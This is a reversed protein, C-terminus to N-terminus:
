ITWLGRLAGAGAYSGQPQVGLGQALSYLLQAHSTEGCNLIRGPQYGAHAAGGVMYFPMDKRTHAAGQAIETVVLILSNDLMSGSRGVRPEPREALMQLLLALQTNIWRKQQAHIEGSNHSAQHSEMPGQGNWNALWDFDMKLPSTHRSIQLTAIRSLGCNLAEVLNNIQMRLILPSAKDDWKLSEEYPFDSIDYGACQNKNDGLIRLQTLHQELKLKERPSDVKAIYAQLESEVNKMVAPDLKTTLQEPFLRKYVALPSDDAVKEAGGPTFSVSHGQSKNALVGFHLLPQRLSDALHVDLSGLGPDRGGTLLMRAAEDHGDGQGDLLSLNRFLLLDASFNQLPALSPGLRGISGSLQTPHWQELFVGDPHYVIILREFASANANAPPQPADGLLRQAYFYSWLAAGGSILQRRGLGRDAKQRQM